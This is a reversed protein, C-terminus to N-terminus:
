FVSEKVYIVDDRQVPDNMKLELIRVVGQADRRHIRMGRETGRQTLGGSLALAQMVTMGPELRQNGPRQVEGYIYFTPARDVFLIDGNAVAIDLDTRGAQLIAPLNIDLKVPKGDRTGSLSIIDAGAPLVGGAVAIIESLKTNAAEIPYRGPRSVQGLVSVQASRVQMLAINVQPNNVFKGTQLRKAIHEQAGTVSLGALKVTGILPFSIEGLETIRTELTLDANQFVTIRITDGAGLIHEARSGQSSSQAHAPMFAAVCLFVSLLWSRVLSFTMPMTVFGQTLPRTRRGGAHCDGRM